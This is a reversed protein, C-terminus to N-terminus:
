KIDRRYMEAAENKYKIFLKRCEQPLMLSRGTREIFVKEQIMLLGIMYIYLIVAEFDDPNRVYFQNVMIEIVLNAYTGETIMLVKDPLFDAYPAKSSKIDDVMEELALLGEDEAKKQMCEILRMAASIEEKKEEAVHGAQRGVQRCIAVLSGTMDIEDVYYM